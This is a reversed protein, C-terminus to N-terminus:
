QPTRVGFLWDRLSRRPPQDGPAMRLECTPCWVAEDGPMRNTSPVAQLLDKHCHPCDAGIMERMTAM